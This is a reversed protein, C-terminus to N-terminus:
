GIFNQKIRANTISRAILAYEIPLCIAQLISGINFYSYEEGFYSYEKIYIITYGILLTISCYYIAKAYQINVLWTCVVMALLVINFVFSWAYLSNDAGEWNINTSIMLYLEYIMISVLPWVINVLNSNIKWLWAAVILMLPKFFLFMLSDFMADEFLTSYDIFSVHFSGDYVSINFFIIFLSFCAVVFAATKSENDFEYNSLKSNNNNKNNPYYKNGTYSINENSNNLNRSESVQMLREGCVSCYGDNTDIENGCKTCYM